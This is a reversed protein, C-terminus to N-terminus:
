ARALLSTAQTDPSDSATWPPTGLTTLQDTRNSQKAGRSARLTARTHTPVSARRRAAVETVYTEAINSLPKKGTERWEVQQRASKMPALMALEPERLADLREEALVRFAPKEAKASAAARGYRRRRRRSYKRPM